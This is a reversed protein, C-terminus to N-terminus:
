DGRKAELRADLRATEECRAYGASHEPCSSIVTDGDIQGHHLCGCGIRHAVDLDLTRYKGCTTRRETAM